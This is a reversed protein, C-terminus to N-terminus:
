PSRKALKPSLQPLSGGRYVAHRVSLHQLRKLLGENRPAEDAASSSPTAPPTSPTSVHAGVVPPKGSSSGPASTISASSSARSPGLLSDRLQATDLLTSPRHSFLADVLPGLAAERAAADASLIASCSGNTRDASFPSQAVGPAAARPSAASSGARLSSMARMNRLMTAKEVHSRWGALVRRALGRESRGDLMRLMAATAAEREADIAALTAAAARGRQM